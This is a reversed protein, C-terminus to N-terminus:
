EKALFMFNLNEMIDVMTPQGEEDENRMANMIRVAVEKNDLEFGVDTITDDDTVIKLFLAGVDRIANGPRFNNFLLRQGQVYVQDPDITQGSCTLLVLMQLAQSLFRLPQERVLELCSDLKGRVPEFAEFIRGGFVFHGAVGLQQKSFVVMNQQCRQLQEETHAYCSFDFCQGTLKDVLRGEGNLNLQNNQVFRMYSVEQQSRALAQTVKDQSAM